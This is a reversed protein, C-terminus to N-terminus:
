SFLKQRDAEVGKAKYGLFFRMASIGNKVLGSCSTAVKQRRVTTKRERFDKCPALAERPTGYIFSYHFRKDRRKTYTYIRERRVQEIPGTATFAWRGLYRKSGCKRAQKRTERRICLATQSPRCEFIARAGTTDLSLVGNLPDDHMIITMVTILRVILGYSYIRLNSYRRIWEPVDNYSCNAILLKERYLNNDNFFRHILILKMIDSCSITRNFSLLQIFCMNRAYMLWGSIDILHTNLECLEVWINGIRCYWSPAFSIAARDRAGM